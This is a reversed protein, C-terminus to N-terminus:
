PGGGIAFVSEFPANVNSSGSPTPCNTAHSLAPLANALGLAAILKFPLLAPTRAARVLTVFEDANRMPVAPTRIALFDQTTADEMGPIVKKGAVGLV